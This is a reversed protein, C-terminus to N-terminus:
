IRSGMFILYAYGTQKIVMYINMRLIDLFIDNSLVKLFRLACLLPVKAFNLGLFLFKILFM